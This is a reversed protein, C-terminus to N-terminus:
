KTAWHTESRRIVRPEPLHPYNNAQTAQINPLKALAQAETAATDLVYGEDFDRIPDHIILWEHERAM